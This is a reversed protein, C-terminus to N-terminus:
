VSRKLEMGPMLEWSCGGSPLALWGWQFRILFQILVAAEPHM